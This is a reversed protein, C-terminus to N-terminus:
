ISVSFLDEDIHGSFLTQLHCLPTSFKFVFQENVGSFENFFCPTHKNRQGMRKM